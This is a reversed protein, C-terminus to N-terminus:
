EEYIMGRFIEKILEDSHADKFYAFEKKQQQTLDKKMNIIFNSLDSGNEILKCISPFKESYYRMLLVDSGIVVKNNSFADVLTGSMRYKFDLPFPMFISKSHNIYYDYAKDELYGKFVKLYDNDFEYIKSKLVVKMKKKKFINSEQELKIIEAIIGEDNSNSLGVCDYLNENNTSENDNLQHPLVFVKEQDIKLDSCLHNKMFEEFVIHNVSEYYKKFSCLKMKNSLEDLNNHHLLFVKDKTGYLIKWIIFLFTDYSSVIIADPKLKKAINASAVMNKLISIRKKVRGKKIQLSNNKILNVDKDLDKYRNNSSLLYVESIQALINVYKTNQRIHGKPYLFDLYLVKM